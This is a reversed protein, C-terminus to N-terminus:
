RPDLIIVPITRSTMTEYDAFGPHDAKHASWISEREDGEAIRARLEVTGEGIEASM